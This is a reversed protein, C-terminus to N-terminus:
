HPENKLFSGNVLQILRLFIINGSLILRMDKAGYVLGLSKMFALLLEKIYLPLEHSKVVAQDVVIRYDYPYSSNSFDVAICFIENGIITIRLDVIAPIFEQFIVPAFRLNDLHNDKFIL